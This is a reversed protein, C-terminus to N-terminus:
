KKVAKIFLSGENAASLLEGSRHVYGIHKIYEIQFGAGELMDRVEDQYFYHLFANENGGVKQYFVDGREYGFEYLHNRFYNELANPGWENVDMANFADFFLAGGPKLKDNIKHLAKQRAARNPLHGFAYLFTASDFRLDPLEAELWDACIANLGREKAINCMESSIDVGTLRPKLGSLQSIRQARRGTGCAIVLAEQPRVLEKWEEAILEDIREVYKRRSAHELDFMDYVAAQESYYASVMEHIKDTSPKPLHPVIRHTRIGPRDAFALFQFKNPELSSFHAEPEEFSATQAKENLVGLTGEESFLQMGNLDKLAPSYFHLTVAANQAPNVLKHIVGDPENLVGGPGANVLNTEELKGNRWRYEVNRCQGELVLVYGSFGEHLHIASEAGPPWHLLVCELPEMALINRAYGKGSTKPLLHKYQLSALDIRRVFEGLHEYSLAPGKIDKLANLLDEM